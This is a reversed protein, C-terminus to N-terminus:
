GNEGRQKAWEEFKSKIGCCVDSWRGKGLDLEMMPEEEYYHCSICHDSEKAHILRAIADESVYREAESM